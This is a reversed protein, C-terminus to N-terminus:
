RQSQQKPEKCGTASECVLSIQEAAGSAECCLFVLINKALQLAWQRACAVHLERPIGHGAAIGSWPIAWGKPQPLLPFAISMPLTRSHESSWSSHQVTSPLGLVFGPPAKKGSCDLRKGELLETGMRSKRRVTRFSRKKQIRSAERKFFLSRVTSCITGHARPETHEKSTVASTM